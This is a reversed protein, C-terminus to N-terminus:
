GNQSIGRKVSMRWLTHALALHDRLEKLHRYFMRQRAQSTQHMIRMVKCTPRIEGRPGLFMTGLHQLHPPLADWARDFEVLWDPTPPPPDLDARMRRAGAGRDSADRALYQERM